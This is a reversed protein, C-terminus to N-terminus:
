GVGPGARRALPHCVMSVWVLSGVGVLSERGGVTSSRPIVTV